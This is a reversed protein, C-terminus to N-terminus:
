LIHAFQPERTGKAKYLQDYNFSIKVIMSHIDVTKDKNRIIKCCACFINELYSSFYNTSTSFARYGVPKM